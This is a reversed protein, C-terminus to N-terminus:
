FQKSNEGFIWKRATWDSYEWLFHLHNYTTWNETQSKLCNQSWLTRDHVPKNNEDFSEISTWNTNKSFILYMVM